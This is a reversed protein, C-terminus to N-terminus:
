WPPRVPFLWGTEGFQVVRVAFWEMPLGVVIGLLTGVLGIVIGEALVTQLIQPRTGGVARLLGLERRRSLVSILLSAVVGLVAVVGVILQQTYVVGYVRKIRARLGERMEAQTRTVLAHQVALPTRMLGERAREADDSRSLYGEWVNVLEGRLAKKNAQRDVFIAGRIWNYDPLIGVVELRVPGGSGDLQITDGIKVRHILAFNESVIAREPGALKRWLDLHPDPNPLSASIQCYAEVDKLVLFVVTGSRDPDAEEASLHDEPNWDIYRITVGVMRSGPLVKLVDEGVSEEMPGTQGVASAPGFASVYLDAQYTADV